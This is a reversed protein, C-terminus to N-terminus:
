FSHLRSSPTDLPMTVNRLVVTLGVCYKVLKESYAFVVYFTQHKHIKTKVAFRFCVFMSTSCLKDKELYQSVTSKFPTHTHTHIYTHTHTHTNRFYISTTYFTPM